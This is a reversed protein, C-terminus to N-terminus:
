PRKKPTHGAVGPIYQSIRALSLPGTSLHILFLWAALVNVLYHLRFAYSSGCIAAFLAMSFM